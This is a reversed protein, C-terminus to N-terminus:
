WRETGVVQNVVSCQEREEDTLQDFSKDKASEDLTCVCEKGEKHNLWILLGYRNKM